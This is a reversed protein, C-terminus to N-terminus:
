KRRFKRVGFGAFALGLLSWLAISTPEPIFLLGVVNPDFDDAGVIDLLRLGDVGTLTGVGGSFDELQFTTLRTAIDPVGNTVDMLGSQPGYDTAVIDLVWSGIPTGGSLPQVRVLDGDQNAVNIEGFFFVASSGAHITTGLSFDTQAMNTQGNSTKLGSLAVATSAPTGDNVAGYLTGTTGANALFTAGQIDTYTVGGRTVAILTQGDPDPSSDFGPSYTGTGALTAAHASLTLSALIAVALSLEKIRQM